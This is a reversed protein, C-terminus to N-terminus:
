LSGFVVLCEASIGSVWKISRQLIFPQTSRPAVLSSSYSLFQATILCFCKSLFYLSSSKFLCISFTSRISHFTSRCSLSFLLQLFFCVVLILMCCFAELCILLRLIFNACEASWDQIVYHTVTANLIFIYLVEYTAM